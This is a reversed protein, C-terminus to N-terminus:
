KDDNPPFGHGFLSRIKDPMIEPNIKCLNEIISSIEMTSIYICFAEAIPLDVGLGLHGQSHNLVAGLIMCLMLGSKHYLGERMKTSKYEKNKFASVLGSIIDLLILIITVVYVQM